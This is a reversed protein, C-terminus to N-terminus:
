VRSASSQAPSLTTRLHPSSGALSRLAVSRPLIAYTSKGFFPPSTTPQLMHYRVSCYLVTCRATRSSALGAVAAHYDFLNCFFLTSGWIWIGAGRPRKYECGAACGGRDLTMLIGIGICYMACPLTRTGSRLEPITEGAGRGSKSVPRSGPGSASYSRGDCGPGNQPSAIAALWLCAPGTVPWPIITATTSM